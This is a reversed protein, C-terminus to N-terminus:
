EEEWIDETTVDLKWALPLQKVIILDGPRIGSYVANVFDEKIQELDFSECLMELKANEDEATTIERQLIYM